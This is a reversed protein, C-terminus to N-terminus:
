VYHVFSTCIFKRENPSPLGCHPFQWTSPFILVSGKTPKFSVDLAEFYADGGEEITNLYFLVTIFRRASAYNGVDTHTLFGKSNTPETCNIRIEELGLEQPFIISSDYDIDTNYQELSESIAEVLITHLTKWPEKDSNTTVNLQQFCFGGNGQKQEIQLDKHNDFEVIMDDCIKDPIINPYFRIFHRLDGKGFIGHQCYVEPTVRM